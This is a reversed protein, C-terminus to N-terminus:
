AIQCRMPCLKRFVFGQSCFEQREFLQEAIGARNMKFNWGIEVVLQLFRHDQDALDVLAPVAGFQFAALFRDPLEVDCFWCQIIQQKKRIREAFHLFFDALEFITRALILSQGFKGLIEVIVFTGDGGM